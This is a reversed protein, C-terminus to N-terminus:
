AAECRTMLDSLWADDKAKGPYDPTPELVLAEAEEWQGRSQLELMRQNIPRRAALIRESVAHAKAHFRIAKVTEALRYGAGLVGFEHIYAHLALTLTHAAVEQRISFAHGGSPAVLPAPGALLRQIREMDPLSAEYAKVIAPADNLPELGPATM